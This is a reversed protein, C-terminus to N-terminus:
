GNAIDMDFHAWPEPPGASAVGFSATAMATQMNFPTSSNLMQNYFLQQQRTRNALFETATMGSRRWDDGISAPAPLRELQAHIEERTGQHLESVLEFLPVAEVKRMPPPDALMPHVGLFPDNLLRDMIETSSTPPIVEDRRARELERRTRRDWIWAWVRVAAVVFVPIVVALPSINM